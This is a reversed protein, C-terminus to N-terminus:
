WSGDDLIIRINVFLLQFFMQNMKPNLDDERIVEWSFRWHFPNLVITIWIGSYRLWNYILTLGKGM